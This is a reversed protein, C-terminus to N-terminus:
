TADCNGWIEKIIYQKHLMTVHLSQEYSISSLLNAPCPAHLAVLSVVFGVSASHTIYRRKKKNSPLQDLEQVVEAGSGAM